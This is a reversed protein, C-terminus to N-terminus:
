STEKEMWQLLRRIEEITANNKIRNARQSIVSINGVVYGLHPLIRDVSPAADRNKSGQRELPIGLVPCVEPVVIDKETISFPIDLLKARSQTTSWLYRALHDRKWKQCSEANTM